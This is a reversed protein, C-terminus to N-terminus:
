REMDFPITECERIPTNLFENAVKAYSALRKEREREDNTMNSQKEKKLWNLLTRYLNTYRKRLDARNEIQQCTDTVMESGYVNVLKDLESDTPLTYHKAIYPCNITLWDAFGQARTNVRTLTNNVNVNDNVNVNVNDNVNVNPTTKIQKPTTKPNNQPQKPTTKTANQNGKPAGGKQGHEAGRKGNERRRINADLQPRILTFLAKAMGKPKPEYGEILAYRCIEDYVALRIDDPCDVLADYFSAYFVFSERNNENM